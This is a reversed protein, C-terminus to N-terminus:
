RSRAWLARVLELLECTNWSSAIRKDSPTNDIDDMAATDGGHDTRRQQGPMRRAAGDVDLYALVAAAM